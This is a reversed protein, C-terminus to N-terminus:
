ERTKLVAVLDLRDIRRRVLVGALVAAGVIVAAAFAYTAATIVLPIRFVEVRFASVMWLALGYGIVFGAPIGLATVTGQEGLLMVSVEHRTFGLVRLSALERGRESLAIRAGNYIVGVAIIVAFSVLLTTTVRLSQAINQEFGRVMALRSQVAGVAPMRKLRRHVDAYRAPDVRLYAGSVTGGEGMARNLAGLEMYANIGFLESTVGAVPLRLTERRGELVEVTVSDGPALALADALADTLLVGAAPVRSVQYRVDVIRRLEAGEPLGTVASSRVRHGGRLRVPVTRFPEVRLVGPLSALDHAVSASRPQAFAVTLDERQAYRFQLDMMYRVADFMFSGVVLIAVAMAVGLASIVSRVPFREFNRIVMRGAPSFLAGLGIREVIGPRFRAPTDPRMAEAPPLRAARRVASLAGVVAAGGAIAVSVAIAGPSVRYILEPFRFYQAYLTTYARGLWIGVGIGLAAGVFVASLAFGLYHRGVQLNSYGFAKLVAIQDRQTSVLRQLVIHLLFAAVALFIAPAITATTRNQALEDSLVRHSVQDARGYAGFAGYPALLRDVRAIVEREGAGPALTLAVANFAGRMDYAAALAEREMWLIGFRRNDPFIQGESVEVVYEPGIAVGAVTLREWRGDIVAGLVDGEALANEEAFRESVLVEDAATPWRGRRLHLANLGEGPAPPLSLMRGTAAEELGPVDLTVDVAVRTQVAAVGPLRALRPALSAPARKVSAFVDAFRYRAYYLDRSEELSDFAIRTTVVSMVGCAVVLAISFVQGRLRWLDRLLMRDAARM